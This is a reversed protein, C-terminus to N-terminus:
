KSEDVTEWKAKLKIGCHKCKYSFMKTPEYKHENYYGPSAPFYGETKFNIEYENPEHECEKKEIEEICVLLGSYNYGYLSDSQSAAFTNGSEHKSVQMKLGREELLNNAVVVADGCRIAKGSIPSGIYEQIWNRSYFDEEKFFM